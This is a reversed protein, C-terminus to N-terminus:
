EKKQKKVIRNFKLSRNGGGERGDEKQAPSISPM